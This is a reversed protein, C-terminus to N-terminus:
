GKTCFRRNPWFRLIRALHNLNSRFFTRSDLQLVGANVLETITTTNNTIIGVIVAIVIIDVSIGFIVIIIIIIVDHIRHWGVLAVWM